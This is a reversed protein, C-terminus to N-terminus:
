DNLCKRKIHNYFMDSNNNYILYRKFISFTFLKTVVKNLLDILKEKKEQNKFLDLFSPIKIKLRWVKIALLRKRINVHEVIHYPSTDPLYLGTNISNCYFVFMNSDLLYKFYPEVNPNNLFYYITIDSLKDFNIITQIQEMTFYKTQLETFSNFQKVTFYYKLIFMDIVSIQSKNLKQIQDVTLAKIQEGIFVNIIYPSINEITLYPIKDPKLYKVIKNIQNTNLLKLKEPTYSDLEQLTPIKEIPNVYIKESSDKQEKSLIPYIAAIQDRSLSLIDSRNLKSVNLTNLKEIEIPKLNEIESATYIKNDYFNEKIM